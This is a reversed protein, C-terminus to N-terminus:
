TKEWWRYFRHGKGCDFLISSSLSATSHWSINWIFSVMHWKVVNTGCVSLSCLFDLFGPMDSSVSRVPWCTEATSLQNATTAIESFNHDFQFEYYRTKLTLKRAQQSAAKKESSVWFLFCKLLVKTSMQQQAIALKEVPLRDHDRVLSHRIGFLFNYCCSKGANVM